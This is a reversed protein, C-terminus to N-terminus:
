FLRPAILFGEMTVYLQFYSLIHIPLAHSHEYVLLASYKHFYEGLLKVTDVFKM